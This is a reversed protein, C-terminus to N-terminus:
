FPDPPPMDHTSVDPMRDRVMKQLEMGSLVFEAARAVQESTWKPHRVQIFRLTGADEIFGQEALAIELDRRSASAQAGSQNGSHSGHHLVQM